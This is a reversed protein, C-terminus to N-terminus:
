VLLTFNCTYFLKDFTSVDYKQERTCCCPICFSFIVLFACLNVCLCSLCTWTFITTQDISPLDDSCDNNEATLGDSCVLCRDTASRLRLFANFFILSFILSKFFQMLLASLGTVAGLVGLCKEM